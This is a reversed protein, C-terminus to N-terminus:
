VPQLELLQPKCLVTVISIRVFGGFNEWDDTSFDIFDIQSREKVKSLICPLFLPGTGVNNPKSLKSVGNFTISFAPLEKRGTSSM